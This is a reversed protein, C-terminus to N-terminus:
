DDYLSGDALLGAMFKNPLATHGGTTASIRSSILLAAQYHDVDGAFRSAPRARYQSGQKDPVTAPPDLFPQMLFSLVTGSEGRKRGVTM